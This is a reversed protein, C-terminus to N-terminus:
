LRWHGRDVTAAMIIRTFCLDPGSTRARLTSSVGMEVPNELISRRGKSEKEAEGTPFESNRKRGDKAKRHGSFANALSLIRCVTRLPGEELGATLM